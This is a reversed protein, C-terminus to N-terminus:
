WVHKHSAVLLDYDQGLHSMADAVLLSRVCLDLEHRRPRRTWTAEAGNLQCEAVPRGRSELQVVLRRMVFRATVLRAEEAEPGPEWSRTRRSQRTPKPLDPSPTLDM